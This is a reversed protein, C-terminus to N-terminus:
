IINNWFIDSCGYKRPMEKFVYVNMYLLLMSL